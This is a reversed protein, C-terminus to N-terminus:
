VDLPSPSTYLLCTSPMKTIPVKNESTDSNSLDVKEDQKENKLNIVSQTKHITKIESTKKTISKTSKTDLTQTQNNKQFNKMNIM